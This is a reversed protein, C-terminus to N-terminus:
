MWPRILVAFKRFIYYKLKKLWKTNHFFERAKPGLEVSEALRQNMNARIKSQLEPQDECIFVTELNIDESRNDWNYSTIAFSSRDFLYTKSHVGFIGERSKPNILPRHDSVEGTHVFLKAGHKVWKRIDGNGAAILALDSSLLGNSYTSLAVGRDILSSMLKKQEKSPTFIPTDFYLESEVNNIRKNLLKKPDYGIKRGPINSAWSVDSCSGKIAVAPSWSESLEQPFHTEKFSMLDQWLQQDSKTEQFLHMVQEQYKQMRSRRWWDRWHDQGTRGNGYRPNEIMRVFRPDADSWSSTWFDDFSQRISSVIPGSIQVDRDLFNYEDGLEMYSDGINRGGVIAKEDDVVLIKRHTRFDPRPFFKTNFIHVQIKRKRFELVLNALHVKNMAMKDLQVRVMVGQKAKQELEQLLLRTSKGPWFEYSEWEISKKASQILELRALLAAHGHNLIVLSHESNELHVIRASVSFSLFLIFASLLRM